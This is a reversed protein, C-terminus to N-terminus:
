RAKQSEQLSVLRSLQQTFMLSNAPVPVRGAVAVTDLHMMTDNADDYAPWHALGEGNPNGSRVFNAWYNMMTKSLARDDPTWPRQVTDQTGFVYALEAGHFSGYVDSDRGPPAHEFRYLFTPAGAAAHQGAQLRSGALGNDSAGQVKARWASESTDHAYFRMLAAAQDGWRATAWAVYSDPTGTRPTFASTENATTGIM